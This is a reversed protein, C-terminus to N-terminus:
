SSKLQMSAECAVNTGWFCLSKNKCTEDLSFAGDIPKSSALLIAISTILFKM